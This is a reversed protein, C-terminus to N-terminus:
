YVYSAPVVGEKGTRVDRAYWWSHDHDDLVELEQGVVLPLEGEGEGDFSFRAHAPRGTEEGVLGGGFADSPTEARVYNSADPGTLPDHGVSSAGADAGAADKETSISHGKGGLITASTAANIHALLSSPRHQTSDDDDGIDAPDFKSLVEDRRSFLTWLIGLLVILFVVGAAIAISILIVVGTALIHRQSFSFNALSNFLGAVSGPNGSTSASVIYPISSQGDFLMSSVQGYSPIDLSGSVFLVRDAEILGQTSHQNQLPVMALQSVNSLGGFASGQQIWVHGNWAALFSSTGDASRGAAFISSANGDNVTIATVPGGVGDGLTSWTGNNFAFQLVYDSSSASLAISGGAILLDQNNGAYAVSAVDGQIGNGLANWQKQVVDWSCIARCPLLGAQGFSGAVVVTNAKATSISLSRVVVSAGSTPQLAPVGSVWSNHLLDYIAFGAVDTGPVTFEGGVFLLNDQVLVARVTGVIAPGELPTLTGTSPHYAAVGASETSGNTFTFNGGLIAVQESTSTNTWFVGALVAPAQAPLSSPLPALTTSSQRTFLRPIVVHRSLWHNADRPHYARRSNSTATSNSVDDGLQVSLPTVAPQGNDGNKVLVFGSAGFSLSSQINGALVQSQQQGKAPATGNGVFTLSGRLFGGSNIWASNGINWVALGPSEQGAGGSPAANITTFNGAVSVQGNDVVLSAVPGNVGTLLPSWQDQSIDYSAISSLRSQTSNTVTDTFSGGVFLTNGSLALSTVPGNLGGGSLATLAGNKFVVINRASPTDLTFTGGIFIAGSPHHAVAALASSPSSALGSNKGLANFLSFGIVDLSTETANSFGTTGSSLSLPWELFGFATKANAATGNGNVANGTANASNLVLQVRDAVLRYQGNQGSGAPSDALAMTITMAFNPSSPVIPGSYIQQAADDQNQQSVVTVTPDQGGGPFVSVKVSTRLSCDQFDTCGPVLLNVNYSGSASVYPMWTFSPGDASSTGVNVTSVLVLQTTAPINTNADIETWSGTFSVNSPQPAFCSLQNSSGVASAFAGSSLLQFLHLGPGAGIWQTLTVQVGTLSVANNFTFDQYPISANTSLPCNTTCTQNQGTAPDVYHLEQIANDPISTVTFATTGRGDLFTNGLRVGSASISQFTRVTIQAGNGDAAFWSQGPGDNGSPCFINQINSFSPDSSSPAGEVQATELPIPVLSSSFPTAGQSFPVNPNNTTNLVSGNGQFNALFSGAFFLSAQSANTTISSVDAAAGTLGGFPPANWSSAKTDWVAVASAPSTFQGGAWLKNHTSDCFLANVHGNPGGAAIYYTSGMACGASIIGGSNTSAIRTLAGNASRSLLTSTSPDFSVDASSSNFFELGAFAGVLGVTGMRDFDVLPSDARVVNLLALLALLFWPPYRPSTTM